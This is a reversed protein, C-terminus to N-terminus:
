LPIFCLATGLFMVVKKLGSRILYFSSLHFLPVFPPMVYLFLYIKYLVLPVSLALFNLVFSVVHPLTAFASMSYLYYFLCFLLIVFYCCVFVIIQCRAVSIRSGCMSLFYIVSLPNPHYYSGSTQPSFSFFVYLFLGHFLIYCLVHSSCFASSFHM